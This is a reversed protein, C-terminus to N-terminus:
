KLPLDSVKDKYVAFGFDIIKMKKVMKKEDNM